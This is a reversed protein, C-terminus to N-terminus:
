VKRWKKLREALKSAFQAHIQEDPLSINRSHIELRGQQDTLEVLQGPMTFCSKELKANGM